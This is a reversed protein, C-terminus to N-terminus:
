ARVAIKAINIAQERTDAALLFNGVHCFNMGLEKVPNGPWEKPFLKRGVFSGPASPITQVNWDGRPSPFVIYLVDPMKNIVVDQWPMFQDLVLIKGDDVVTSNLVADEAKVESNIRAVFADLVKGYLEVAEMFKLMRQGESCDGDWNPNFQSIACTLLNHDIGNDNKDIAIVLEKDMKEWAKPNPCLLHGYDRWLLGFSCYPIPQMRGDKDIYYGDEIPRTARGTQHHDYEGEGIDYVITDEDNLISAVFKKDVTRFIQINPCIRLLLATAFVDDAHFVSGHTYGKEIRNLNSIM